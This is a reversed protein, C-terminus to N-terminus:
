RDDVIVVNAIGHRQALFYAVSIGAIGAGCILVDVNEVARKM